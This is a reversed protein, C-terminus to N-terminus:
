PASCKSRELSRRLMQRARLLRSKATTESIGLIAAADKLRCGKRYYLDMLRRAHAPLRQTASCLKRLTQDAIYSQEPDLGRDRFDPSDFRQGDASVQESVMEPLSRRKRLLMLATNIGIKMMWTSVRCTGRFTDLHRYASLLTEQLVDEADERNRVIDFIRHKLMGRYRVCLEDFARQDGSKADSLLEDDSAQELQVATTSMRNQNEKTLGGFTEFAAEHKLIDAFPALHAAAGNAPWLLGHL